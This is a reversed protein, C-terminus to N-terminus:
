NKPPANRYRVGGQLEIGRADFLESVSVVEYGREKLAPLIRAASAATLDYIDHLLIIDGDKVNNLVGETIKEVSKAKESESKPKEAWDRPDISWMFFPVNLVKIVHDNVAGYPPRFPVFHQGTKEKIFSVHGFAESLLADNNSIKTLNKHGESHCGVESGSDSILKVTEGYQRANRGLTFFTAHASNAKLHDLIAKTSRPNPGDDFTLAVIKAGDAIGFGALRLKLLGGFDSVRVSADGVGMDAPLPLGPNFYFRISRGDLVFKDYIGETDALAKVFDEGSALDKTKEQSSYYSVILDQARKKFNPRFFDESTLAKGSEADIVLTRVEKKFDGGDDTRSDLEFVLSYYDAKGGEIEKSATFIKYDVKLLAPKESLSSSAKDKFDKACDQVKEEILKDLAEIGIQPYFIKIAYTKTTENYNEPNGLENEVEAHVFDKLYETTTEAPPLTTQTDSQTQTQDPDTHAPNSRGKFFFFT